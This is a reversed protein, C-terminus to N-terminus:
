SNTVLSIRPKAELDLSDKGNKLYLHYGLGAIMAANDMSLGPPPFFLPLDFANKLEERLRQNHSVGGGIFIQHFEFKKKVLSIKKIVDYIATKQFSAALDAKSHEEKSAYLVSTKLGSFSFDLESKKVRGATFPIKSDNGVKALQEVEPGGPYPLGLIKAVKDFAEGMADDVTQGIMEYDGLSKILVMFTHGGSLVVGLSPFQVNQGMMSAYLHAEIHNVGVYPIDWAISLAKAANLGILLAGILGPGRTAAILDIKPSGAKQIAEEIVPILIDVHARSALEPFVGGYKKHIDTQSYIVNSLIEKGDKVISVASEDCSTEIGLVIM